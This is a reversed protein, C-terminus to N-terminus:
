RRVACAICVQAAPRAALREDGIAGGCRVCRGYTGAALRQEAAALEALEARARELLALVQAREFAITSGEPDHEDDANADRSAAVMGAFDGSLAAIRETVTSRASDILDRAANADV